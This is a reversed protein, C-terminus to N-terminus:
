DDDQPEHLEGHPTTKAPDADRKEEGCPDDDERQESCFIHKYGETPELVETVTDTMGPEFIVELYWSKASFWKADKVARSTIKLLCDGPRGSVGPHGHGVLFSRHTIVAGKTYKKLMEPSLNTRCEILGDLDPLRGIGSRIAMITPLWYIYADSTLDDAELASDIYPYIDGAIYARLCNCERQTICFPPWHGSERCGSTDVADRSRSPPSLPPDVYGDWCAKVVPLGRAVQRRSHLILWVWKLTWDNRAAWCAATFYLQRLMVEFDAGGSGTCVIPLALSTVRSGVFCHMARFINEVVRPAEQPDAPEFVLLRNFHLGKASLDRSIWCPMSPEYCAAKHKSEELVSVGAADLSGIVSGPVPAYDGPLASICLFEVAYQASICTVDGQYLDLEPGHHHDDIVTYLLVSLKSRLEKLGDFCRALSEAGAADGSVVRFATLNYGGRMLEWCGNFLAELVDCEDTGAAEAADTCVLSSLITAGTDPVAPPQPEFEKIAAFIGPIQEPAQAGTSEFCLIHGYPIAQSTATSLDKSIWCHWTTRYDAAPDAALTAICLGYADQLAKIMSGPTPAYDGPPCSIVLYRAKEAPKIATPDGRALGITKLQENAIGGYETPVHAVNLFVLSMAAQIATSIAADPFARSDDKKKCSQLITTLGEASLSAGWVTVTVAAFRDASETDFLSYLAPLSQEATFGSARSAQASQELDYGCAAVLERIREALDMKQETSPM